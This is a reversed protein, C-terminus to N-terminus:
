PTVPGPARIAARQDEVDQIARELGDLMTQCAAVPSGTFPWVFRDQSLYADRHRQTLISFVRPSLDNDQRFAVVLRGGKGDVRDIQLAQARLRCHMVEIALKVPTPLRGYRDEVEGAVAALDGHSRCTMISKYYYLRQGEDEVYDSPILAKVPLDFAPLPALGELPDRLNSRDSGDAVDKLFEVESEILQTYLDFGVANMQGSQKAGLLEGAGRIQLDRFALSYGSGLHSFEQLAQLRSMAAETLSKSGAYLFYAYAQRDSRGVRGRLQYLQALGFKDANEVVLTNANPIDLGNEVITTSVLIDIEGKIFGLMVPELEAEGMQGHGVAVRATPVLKRIKEAVHYIGEVRNYVYYVQGGRALERLLAERVVETSFPRVFSRIPLRGPPPDNILSMHRINMLAMSLTRPIPTASLTLVDVNVRLEKLTEKHKVGFKQEEDIVILGLDKFKLSKNLLAHTGIVIDVSGDELRRKVDTRDATTRFRNMLEVELPFGALREQFNRFHQESLITTPCLVAVQKGAQAVKFAARIAVETKGFGVDGCVLRDMPYDTRLDDKVDQIAALQSPTEVWPFTHEMEAQWPSDGGYSLRQVRKREAYLQILGRAFERAEERAKGVTRQWEGGTLRNVKPPTDEPALYKQVRDLQDTPVFLRDPAKYDIQLFEKEVGEQIRRVLGQYMGIGFHIHVVFDGPKLDLVTTIPIGESFKRQALKLRAVGFLEQDTIVAVKLGECVFGGALNGEVLTLGGESIGGDEDGPFLEVQSLIAKARTPQDTSVAVSLGGALWSKISATLLTPQGRFGALSVAGFESETGSPFWSPVGDNVLALSREAYSFHEPPLVYDNATSDLIEGREVRHGLAQGLEEESRAAVAEIESPDDLILLGSEPLLDLACGSDPHLLPRYLDLRDFFVRNQLAKIDGEVFERLRQGVEIPLRAAEVELSREILDVIHASEDPLMTERSPAVTLGEVPGLSRQTMPDFERLSEVEDGFLEIRVPREFGMPFVDLIGGRRSYQGPVRVPDAIDYGLKKLTVAVVNPDLSEGAQVELFSGALQDPPLTRELAAPGTAIVFGPEDSLLFRLAGIRDSLAVTEPSADEFLASQGSPLLRISEPPVGCLGLRAQWQLARDYNPTVVLAKFVGEGVSSKQHWLASAFLSRAEPTLSTWRTGQGLDALTERLNDLTAFWRAFDSLRIGLVRLTGAWVHGTPNVSLVVSGIASGTDDERSLNM